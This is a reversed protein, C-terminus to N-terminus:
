EVTLGAEQMGAVLDAAYSHEVNLTMGLWQWSEANVNKEIWERGAPTMPTFGFLNGHRDVIVDCETTANAKSM